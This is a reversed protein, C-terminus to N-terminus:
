CPSPSLPQAGFVDLKITRAPDNWIGVTGDTGAAARTCDYYQQRRVLRETVWLFVKFSGFLLLLAAFMAVTM